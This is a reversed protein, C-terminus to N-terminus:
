RSEDPVFVLPVCTITLAGHGHPQVQGCQSAVRGDFLLALLNSKLATVAHEPVLRTVTDPHKTPLLSFYVCEIRIIFRM